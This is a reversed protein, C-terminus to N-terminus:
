NVPVAGARPPAAAARLLRAAMGFAQERLAAPELLDFDFGAAALNALPTDLDDWGTRLITAGATTGDQELVATTVGFAEAVTAVPAHVRVVLQYRYPSRTIAQQVYAAMDAAPLPRGPFRQRPSPVGQFRDVRFTRWDTRQQDWAVLYWRRGATVLRYPEALRHTSAGDWATYGFSLVRHEAIAASVATLVQPDVASGPSAITSVSSRLSAFKARLRSPLVQDLKALARVSAEGIGAIPGSTVTILGLAVALAEDDDLLLPPLQAGAGLQYGGAVGPSANIPYGLSRLKDMDRRVTRETVGMREALAAGTWERRVQLLSLLQLLRASTELM